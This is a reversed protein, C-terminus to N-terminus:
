SKKAQEHAAIMTRLREIRSDLRALGAAAEESDKEKAPAKEKRLHELERLRERLSELSEASEAEEFAIKEVAPKGGKADPPTSTPARDPVFRRAPEIARTNMFTPSVIEIGDAHLADLMSRRLVSNASLVSKVDALMGGVRYSISFDGLEVVLVFADALKAAGAAKLLADTVAKHPVDYGLSVDASVITGQHRLLRVPNQALYLNPLEILDSHETQIETFLLGRETVRGFHQGVEVFDGVNLRRVSRVMFGALVNGLLTTSSLAVAASVVIGLFQLLSGRQDSFPAPLTLVAAVVAVLTLGLLVLQRTFRTTNGRTELRSLLVHAGILAATASALTAAFVWFGGPAEAAVPLLIAM